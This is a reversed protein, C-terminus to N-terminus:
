VQSQIILKVTFGLASLAFGAYVLHSVKEATKAFDVAEYASFSIRVDGTDQAKAVRKILVSMGKKSIYIDLALAALLCGTSFVFSLSHVNNTVLLAWNAAIGSYCANRCKLGYDLAHEQLLKVSDVVSPGTNSM